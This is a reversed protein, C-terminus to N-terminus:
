DKRLFESAELKQVEQQKTKAHLRPGASLLVNNRRGVNNGGEPYSSVSDSSVGFM